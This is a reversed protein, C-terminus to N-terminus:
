VETPVMMATYQSALARTPFVFQRSYNDITVPQVIVPDGGGPDPETTPAVRVPSGSGPNATARIVIRALFVATQDVGLPYEGSPEPNGPDMGSRPWADLM